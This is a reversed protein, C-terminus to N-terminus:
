TGGGPVASVMLDSGALAPEIGDPYWGVGVRATVAALMSGDLVVTEVSAAVRSVAEAGREGTVVGGRVAGSLARLCRRRFQPLPEDLRSTLDLEASRHIQPAWGALLGGLAREAAARDVAGPRGRSGEPPEGVRASRLGPDFPRFVEAARCDEQLEAAWHLWRTEVVNWAAIDARVQLTIELWPWWRAAGLGVPVSLTRPPVLDLRM